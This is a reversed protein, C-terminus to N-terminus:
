VRAVKIPQQLCTIIYMITNNVIKRPCLYYYYYYYDIENLYIRLAEIAALRVNENPDVNGFKDYYKQKMIPNSWYWTPATIGM